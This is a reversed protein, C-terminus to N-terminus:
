HMRYDLEIPLPYQELVEGVTLSEESVGLQRALEVTHLEIWVTSLAYEGERIDYVILNDEMIQRAKRTDKLKTYCLALMMRLRGNQQIEPSLSNFVEIWRSYMGESLLATAADIALPAYDSKLALAAEMLKVAEPGNHDINREMQALNRLAWPNEELEISRRFAAKAKEYQGDAYYLIGLHNYEYWTQQLNQELKDIWFKGVVYSAIPAEQEPLPLKGCTLLQMWDHQRADMSSEPFRCRSSIPTERIKNEMAGWGSGMYVLEEEGTLSFTDGDLVKQRDRISAAVEEAAAAYDAGHLVQPNGSALTYGENWSITSKGKMVFHELQTKLIGAQIEVYADGRDSLWNNWHRGGNHQGWMFLKRGTLTADSFHVLGKGDAEVAAIWKDHDEPIKYFYDRSREAVAPYTVDVGGVAPLPCEDLFYSGESYACYFSEQTPVIVRTHPTEDVAINSWWYMYKEEEATNEIDVHICLVDRELAAYIAYVVGRIREYEYMKLVPEGKQNATRAAFMPSCTLPNHGKIGVNWEVGGSFWANRLALNGPQFVDNKYLLERNAKKDFLSWLRGGLEPLFTAVLYENELVAADFGRIERSRDYGDEIQYPLLTSIMGKGILARDEVSIRQSLTIPARIYSNIHIDPLCNPEGMKAAPMYFKEFRLESM